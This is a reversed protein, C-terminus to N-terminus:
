VVVVVVVFLFLKFSADLVDDLPFSAGNRLANEM